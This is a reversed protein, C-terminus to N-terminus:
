WYNLSPIGIFSPSQRYIFPIPSLLTGDGCVVVGFIVDLGSIGSLLALKWVSLRKEDETGATTAEAVLGRAGLMTTRAEPKLM